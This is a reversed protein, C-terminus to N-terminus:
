IALHCDRNRNREEPENRMMGCTHGKLNLHVQLPLNVRFVSGRDKNPEVWVDGKMLSVLGRVISLGLGGGGDGPDEPCRGKRFSEFILQQNAMDIGRGSDKVFLQLVRDTRLVYGFEVIGKRTFKLANEALNIMIQGVRYRDGTVQMDDPLAPKTYLLAVSHKGNRHKMGSLSRYLEDFLGSVPFDSEKLKLQGSEIISMDIMKEIISLLNESSNCIYQLYLEKQDRSLNEDLLLSSFGIISNMPTRIEHNVHSLFMRKLQHYEEGSKRLAEELESVKKLLDDYTLSESM